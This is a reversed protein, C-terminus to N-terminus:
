VCACACACVCACEGHVVVELQASVSGAINTVVCIYVGSHAKSTSGIMLTGEPTVVTGEPLGASLCVTDIQLLECM